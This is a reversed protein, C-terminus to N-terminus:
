INAVVTDLAAKTGEHGRVEISYIGQYGLTNTFRVATALDWRPSPRVHMSGVTMPLLTRLAAHLEGQDAAGVGGLDVNALAGSNALLEALLVWGPVNTLVPLPAGAAPPAPPTAPPQAAPNVVGRNNGSVPGRTEVGVKVGRTKGYEVMERLAPVSWAKNEHSPAGQNIMVRPSGVTVAHDIWQKTLDIAHLRATPQAASINMPGFELNINTFRSGAKEVRSRLDKLYGLETSAFHTHQIEINHVGYRDAFMVPIDFLELTDNPGEWLGPVRMMSEFNLTMIAVRDLKSRDQQRM